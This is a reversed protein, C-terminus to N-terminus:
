AGYAEACSCDGGACFCGAISCDESYAGEHVGNFSQRSYRGNVVAHPRGSPMGNGFEKVVALNHSAYRTPVDVLDGVDLDGGTPDIYTYLKGRTHSFRPDTNVFEVQVYINEDIEELVVEADGFATVYLGGSDDAFLRFGFPVDWSRGSRSQKAKLVYKRGEEM